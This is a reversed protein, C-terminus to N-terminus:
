AEAKVKAFIEKILEPNNKLEDKVNEKGQGLRREGYYFWGGKKDIIKKDVGVDILSGLKSIGENYIIDFEAVKFPPAVKNKAVKVKTRNGIVDGKSDKIAAIRRIDLRVSAYFKLARGGPTTTSSGGYTMVGIKDRIQNIFVCCAKARNISATLKRLAQSLLRAQLGIHADGIEGDLEARPVLAAVSDIVVIDVANSKVLVEAIRLADEGCDPQSVLLNDLDVGLKKAYAPDLANEADIFAAVGGEKQANAVLHLALTTKGSSEPGYIEVIRSRPVGGVGLAIDLSIAGTPIVAIDLKKDGGLKMIAGEGFQKEIQSVALEVAKNKNDKAKDEEKTQSKKVVQKVAM